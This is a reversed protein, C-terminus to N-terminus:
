PVKITYNQPPFILFGKLELWMEKKGQKQETKAAESLWNLLNHSFHLSNLRLLDYSNKNEM